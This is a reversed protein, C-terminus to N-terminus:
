PAQIGPLGPEYVHVACRVSGGAFSGGSATLLLPEATYYSMPASLLGRAFSGAELGLGSGFRDPAGPSGLQWSSLTGTIQSLVRATVAFVMTNAPLVAVTLSEAGAAITHDIEVVRFALAAGAPSLAVAGAQWGEGDHVAAAHEDAIWARWGARPAVFIWGGNVRLAIRGAQGAWDNAPNAPLGWAAGEPAFPPPISVTRSVLVIQALGDLRSLAENVTVHKQAQSPQLLPLGFQTTESM